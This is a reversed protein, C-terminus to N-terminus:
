IVTDRKATTFEGDKLYSESDSFWFTKADKECGYFAGILGKLDKWLGCHCIGEGKRTSSSTLGRGRYLQKSFPQRLFQARLLGSFYYPIHDICKKKVSYSDFRTKNSQKLGRLRVDM